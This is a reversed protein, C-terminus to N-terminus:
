EPREEKRPGSSTSPPDLDPEPTLEVVHEAEIIGGAAPAAAEETVHPEKPSAMRHSRVRMPGTLKDSLSPPLWRAIRHLLRKALLRRLPPILLPLAVVDSIFGPLLLLCGAVAGLLSDAVATPAHTSTDREQLVRWARRGHRRLVLAGLISGALLLLVTPGAGVWSAVVVIASIEAIALVVFFLGAFSTVRM